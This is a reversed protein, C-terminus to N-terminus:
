FIAQLKTYAVHVWALSDYCKFFALIHPDGKLDTGPFRHAMAKELTGLFGSRFGCDCKMGAHVLDRLANVLCHEELTTWTRRTKQARSKKTDGMHSVSQADMVRFYCIYKMILPLFFGIFLADIVM